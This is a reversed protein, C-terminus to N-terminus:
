GEQESSFLLVAAKLAHSWWWPFPLLQAVPGPGVIIQFVAAPETQDRPTRLRNKPPAIERMDGQKEPDSLSRPSFCSLLM